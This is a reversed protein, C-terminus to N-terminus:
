GWRPGTLVPLIRDLVFALIPRRERLGQITEDDQANDFEHLMRDALARAFDPKSIVVPGGHQPDEALKLLTSALGLNGQSRECRKQHATLVDDLPLALTVAPRQDPPNAAREILVDLMEAPSFNSDELNAEFLLVDEEPLEHARILGTVYRAMAGETDAIVVTRQAYNTFGSVMTNLRSASGAGGLDTFGLEDAWRPGLLGAVLQWVM